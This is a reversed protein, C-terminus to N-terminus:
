GAEGQGAADGWGAVLGKREDEQGKSDLLSACFRGRLERTRDALRQIEEKTLVRLVIVCEAREEFREKADELAEPNVLRRDIKTWRAGPPIGNKGGADKLPAVGERVTDPYDPFKETPRKLIGRPKQQDSDDSANALPPDVIRVRNERRSSLSNDIIHAQPEDTIPRDLISPRRRLSPNNNLTSGGAASPSSTVSDNEFSRRIAPPPGQENFTTPGIGADLKPERLEERERLRAERERRRRERDPDSAESREDVSVPPRGLERQVQEMRRRYDEDPDIAPNAMQAAPPEHEREFSREQTHEDGRERRREPQTPKPAEGPKEFAFGLGHDAERRADRDRDRHRDYPEDSYSDPGRPRRERDDRRPPEEYRQREAEREIERDREREREREKEREREREREREKEKDREREREREKRLRERERERDSEREKDSSDREDSRDRNFVKGLGFAAAAGALGGTAAQALNSGRRNHHRDGGERDGRDRQDRQDRPESRELTKTREREWETESRGLERDRERDRPREAYDRGYAMDDDRRREREHLQYASSMEPPATERRHPESLGSDRYERRQKEFSEDSGRGYRDRSEPRVGFGRREVSADPRRSTSHRRERGHAARPERLYDPESAHPDAHRDVPAPRDHHVALSRSDRSNARPRGEMRGERSATRPPVYYPDRVDLYRGRSPSQAVHPPPDRASRTRGVGDGIKDWGRTSVPPGNGVDKTSTRPDAYTNVDLMSVPRERSAGGRDLSGRRPKQERWRPETDRYMSAPDTYSFADDDEISKGDRGRGGHGGNPHYTRRSRDRHRDSDATLGSSKHGGREISDRRRHHREKDHSTPVDVDAVLKAKGDDVSYLKKHEVQRSSSEKSTAPTVYYNNDRSMKMPSSPRGVDNQVVTPRSRSPLTAVSPASGRQQDVVSSRRPRGSYSDYREQPRSYHTGSPAPPNAFTQTSLPVVGASTRPSIQYSTPNRHGGGGSYYSDPAFGDSVKGPNQLRRGGPSLTRNYSMNRGVAAQISPSVTAALTPSPSSLCTTKPRPRPQGLSFTTARRQPPRQQEIM